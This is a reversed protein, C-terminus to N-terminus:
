CRYRTRTVGLGGLLLVLKLDSSRLEIPLGAPSENRQVAQPVDAFANSKPEPFYVGKRNIWGALHTTVAVDASVTVIRDAAPLRSLAGLVRGFAEQTSCAAPYTEDVQSPVEARSASPAPPTFLPPLGRVLEAEQSGPAFGDWEEGDGIGLAGRLADVQSQTLLMTHNLPDGAVPLGWGKITHAFIVARRDRVRGAEDIAELIM